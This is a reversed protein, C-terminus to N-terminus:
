SGSSRALHSLERARQLLTYKTVLDSALNRPLQGSDAYRIFEDLVAAFHEEHTTRLADPIVIRFASAARQVSLGPFEPQVAAVAADLDNAYGPDAQSPEVILETRFGTSADLRVAIEARTGRAVIHHTDGGGEPIALGWLAEIAVRIGRSRYAISGNCLYHLVNDTVHDRLAGPFDDLGTIRTFLDRPIQTPWQRASILEVDREFDFPQGGTM